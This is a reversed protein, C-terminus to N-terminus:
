QPPTVLHENQVIFDSDLIRAISRANYPDNPIKRLLNLEANISEAVLKPNNGEMMNHLIRLYIAPYDANLQKQHTKLWISFPHDPFYCNSTNSATIVGLLDKGLKSENVGLRRLWELYEDNPVVKKKRNVFLTPPFEFEDEYLKSDNTSNRSFCYVGDISFSSGGGRTWHVSHGNLKMYAFQLMTLANIIPKYLSKGVYIGFSDTLSNEWDPHKKFLEAYKSLPASFFDSCVLEPCRVKAKLCQIAIDCAAELPYSRVRDRAISIAPRYDNKLVISSSMATKKDLRHDDSIM